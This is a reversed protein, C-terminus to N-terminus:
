YTVKKRVSTIIVEPLRSAILFKSRCRVQPISGGPLARKPLITKKHALVSLTKHRIGPPFSWSRLKHTQGPQCQTQRRHNEPGDHGKEPDLAIHRSPNVPLDTQNKQDHGFDSIDERQGKGDWAGQQHTGLEDVSSPLSLRRELIARQNRSPMDTNSARAMASTAPAINFRSDWGALANGGPSRAPGSGAVLIAMAGASSSSGVWNGSGGPSRLSSTTTTPSDLALPNGILVPQRNALDQFPLEALDERITRDAHLNEGQAAFIELLLVMAQRPNNPTGIKQNNIATMVLERRPKVGHAVQAVIEVILLRAQALDEDIPQFSDRREAAQNVRRGLFTPDGDRGRRVTRARQDIHRYERRRFVLRQDLLEM